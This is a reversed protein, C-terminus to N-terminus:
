DEVAEQGKNNKIPLASGEWYCTYCRYRKLDLISFTWFKLMRETSGRSTRKVESGCNPCREIRYYNSFRLILIVIFGLVAASGLWKLLLMGFAAYDIDTPTM